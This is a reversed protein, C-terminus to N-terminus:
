LPALSRASADTASDEVCTPCTAIGRPTQLTQSSPPSASPM